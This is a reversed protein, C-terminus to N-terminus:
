RLVCLFTTEYIKEASFYNEKSFKKYTGKKKLLTYILLFRTNRVHNKKQIFIVKSRTKIM